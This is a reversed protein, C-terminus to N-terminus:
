RLYPEKRYEENEIVLELSRILNMNELDTYYWEYDTYRKGDIRVARHRKYRVTQGKVYKVGGGVSTLTKTLIGEKWGRIKEKM